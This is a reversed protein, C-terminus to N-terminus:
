IVIIIEAVIIVRTLKRIIGRSAAGALTAHGGELGPVPHRPLPDDPTVLGLGGGEGPHHPDPAPARAAGHAPAGDDGGPEHGGGEVAGDVRMLAPPLRTVVTVAPPVGDHPRVVEPLPPPPHADYIHPVGRPRGVGVVPLVTM